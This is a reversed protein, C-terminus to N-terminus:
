AVAHVQNYEQFSVMRKTDECWLKHKMFSLSEWFGLTLVYKSLIPNEEVCAKLNYSPISSNLHHIHHYGIYGTAWMVIAPLDYFTTGRISAILHDWNELEENYNEEHQHQVYFFWYAILGFTFLISGQIIVFAKWGLLYSLLAYFGFILVNDLLHSNKVDAWTKLRPFPIRLTVTLYIVPSLIFQVFPNRFVRYMFKGWPSKANYEAVTLFYIDGLGRQEIQGNHVHHYNHMESWYHYPVSTFLSSFLGLRNNIKRNAFFSQHGCDHQIIFIRVMFFANLAGLVLTLWLSWSITYYMLGWLALFPLFSTLIQLIAKRNNTQQYPRIIKRWGALDTSIQHDTMSSHKIITALFIVGSCGFDHAIFNCLCFYLCEGNKGFYFFPIM